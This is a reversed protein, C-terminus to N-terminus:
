HDTNKIFRGWALEGIFIGALISMFYGVNMTMAALMLLYGVGATVTSLCSLPFEVSWRWPRGAWDSLLGGERVEEQPQQQQVQTQALQEKPNDISSVQSSNATPSSAVVVTRAAARRRLRRSLVDHWATLFRYTFGLVILFIVTGAYQGKTKPAWKSSYLIDTFSTHFFMMTGTSMDMDMDM